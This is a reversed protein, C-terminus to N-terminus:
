RLLPTRTRQKVQKELQGHYPRGIVMKAYSKRWNNLEKTRSVYVITPCNKEDILDRITYYKDKNNDRELVKYHLNARSANARFLELKLSLKGNFYAKIDEIVKPKATATFCSVPIGEELNKKEQLSKIFDGIYLYDM